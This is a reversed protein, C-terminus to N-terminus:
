SAREGYIPPTLGAGSIVAVAGPYRGWTVANYSYAICEVTLSSGAQQEFALTIPDEPREFAHHAQSSYVFVVDQNSGAGQNVPIGTSTIVKLGFLSGAFGYKAADGAGLANFMANSAPLLLPRDTTDLSSAIASWRRPHMAVTDAQYGLGGVNVAIRAVSDALAGWLNGVSWSNLAVSETGSTNLLGLHQGSSGSGSVAQSEFAAFNRAVLDEFLIESNYQARELSQRSVPVYGAITRVPVTLDTEVADQTSVASNESAQIGAATGTTIRPLIISMGYEPLDQHDLSDVIHRGSRGAKAYLELLYAPPILGGFTGSSMSRRELELHQHRSLREQAVLDGQKAAYMDAFFSRGHKTYMDSESVRIPVMGRGDAAPVTRTLGDDVKKFQAKARVVAKAEDLEAMLRDASAVADKYEVEAEPTDQSRSALKEVRAVAQDAAAELEAISRM